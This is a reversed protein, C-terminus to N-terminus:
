LTSAVACGARLYVASLIGDHEPSYVLPPADTDGLVLYATVMLIEDRTGATRDLDNGIYRKPLPAMLRLGGVYHGIGSFTCSIGREMQKGM